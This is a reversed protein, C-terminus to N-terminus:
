RRVCGSVDYTYDFRSLVSGDPKFNVLHEIQNASDYEYTTYVGNGLTKRTLRGASDFDYDVILSGTGDKLVDLRELRTTPTTSRTATRTSKGSACGPFTISSHWTNETPISSANLGIPTLITSLYLRGKCTPLPSSIELPM